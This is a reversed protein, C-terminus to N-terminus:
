CDEKAAFTVTASPSTSPDLMRWTAWRVGAFQRSVCRRDMLDELNGRFQVDLAGKRGKARGPIAPNPAPREYGFRRRSPPGGIYAPAVRGASLWGIPPKAWLGGRGLSPSAFRHSVM